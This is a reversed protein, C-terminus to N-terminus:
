KENVSIWIKLEFLAKFTWNS